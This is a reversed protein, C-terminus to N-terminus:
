RFSKVWNVLSDHWINNMVDRKMQDNVPGREAMKELIEAQLEEVSMEEYSKGERQKKPVSPLKQEAPEPTKEIQKKLPKFSRGKRLWIEGSNGSVSVKLRGNEAEAKKGFLAGTYVGDQAQVDFQAEQGANNVTIIVQDRAFAFQGTTLSLEHYSGYSLEPVEKHIKGLTMILETCPNDKYANKYNNLDLCPRLPADTGWTKKGEIGFESGYYISPIGPLTYLLIHLPTYHAKNNLISMIREVDHNDAFNYLKLEAPCM